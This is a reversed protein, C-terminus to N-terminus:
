ANERLAKRCQKALVEAFDCPLANGIINCAQDIFETEFVYDVPFTQLLAAERVSITRLQSPHGFRGKSPTTCGATITPSVVSSSMKGYVNPFGTDGQKHCKPRIRKPIAKWSKGARAARLRERNLPTIERVVHWMHWEPGGSQNAERITIPAPIGKLVQKVPVWDPKDDSGTRSHTAPPLPIEFGKGALLVLRRRSQPVGYDAVQLVSHRAIYGLEELMKLFKNFLRRGKDGLGPVNEMMVANPKIQRVIRGMELILSNRPDRRKYKSTLSSFGQCPPCGAILDIKGTPSTDLLQKKTVLRIDKEIVTTRPHNAEYTACAHSNFEVAACVNFGARRLGVTLGGGGAFLDIAVFQSARNSRPM